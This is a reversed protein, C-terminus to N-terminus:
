RKPKGGEEIRFAQGKKGKGAKEVKVAGVAGPVATITTTMGASVGFGMRTYAGNNSFLAQLDYTTPPVGTLTM